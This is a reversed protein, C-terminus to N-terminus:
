PWKDKRYAILSIYVTVDLFMAITLAPICICSVECQLTDERLRQGRFGSIHLLLYCSFQDPFHHCCTGGAREVNWSTSLYSLFWCLYGSLTTCVGRRVYAEWVQEHVLPVLIKWQPQYCFGEYSSCHASPYGPNGSCSHCWPGAALQLSSAKRLPFALDRSSHLSWWRYGELALSPWSLQGQWGM